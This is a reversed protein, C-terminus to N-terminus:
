SQKSDFAGIKKSFKEAFMNKFDYCRDNDEKKPCGTTQKKFLQKHVRPIYISPMSGRLSALLRAAAAAMAEDFTSFESFVFNPWRRCPQWISYKRAL